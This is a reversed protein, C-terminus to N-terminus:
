SKTELDKVRGYLRGVEKRLSTITERDIEAQPQAQPKPRDKVPNNSHFFFSGTAEGIIRSLAQDFLDKQLNYSADSNCIVLSAVACGLADMIAAVIEEREIDPNQEKEKEAWTETGYVFREYARKRIDENM